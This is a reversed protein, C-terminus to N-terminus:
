HQLAGELFPRAVPEQSGNKYNKKDAGTRAGFEELFARSDAGSLWKLLTKAAGDGELYTERSRCRSGIIKRRGRSGSFLGPEPEGVSSFIYITLGSIIEVLTWTSYYSFSLAIVM